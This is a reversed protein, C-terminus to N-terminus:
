RQPLLTVQIFNDTRLFRAASQKVLDPTLSEIVQPYSLLLRPDDGIRYYASLQGLWYGNEKLNTEYSRRLTEKVKDVDQQRAGNAKLSDIEQFVATGLAEVRDPAAGFSISLAYSSWPDRSAGGSASAGYTGGLDERLVERLRINLIEALSSVAFRNARTYELPGSFHITTESKPELGRRVERKVVGTPPRVGNDRWTEKRGATPLSALYKEVMPKIGDPTFNGVFVFTFDGADAFRDRYFALSRDLDLSDLLPASLLRIRPHYNTIVRTLTDSLANAPDAAQHELSARV